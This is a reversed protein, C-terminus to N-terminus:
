YSAPFTVQPLMCLLAMPDAAAKLLYTCALATYVRYYTTILVM